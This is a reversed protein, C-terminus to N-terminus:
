DDDGMKRSLDAWDVDDLVWQPYKSRLTAAMVEPSKGPTEKKIVQPPPAVIPRPGERSGRVTRLGLRPPVILRPGERSGRVTRM